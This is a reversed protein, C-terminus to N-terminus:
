SRRRRSAGLLGLITMGFVLGTAPEPVSVAELADVNEFQTGFADRVSFATNWLHGGHNLFHAPQGFEWIWVEGGDVVLDSGVTIPALSFMIADGPGFEGDFPNFGTGVDGVMLADVDIRVDLNPMGIAGAIDARTLYPQVGGPGLVNMSYVSVGAADGEVSLFNTGTQEEIGWLDVSNIDRLVGGAHGHDVVQSRTAFSQVAGTAREAALAVDRGLMQDSETSVILPVRNDVVERFLRDNVQAQADIHLGVIDKPVFGIIDVGNRAGGLGDFLGLQMPQVAHPVPQYNQDFSDTLEKGPVREVPPVADFVGPVIPHAVPVYTENAPLPRRTIAILSLIALCTITRTAM